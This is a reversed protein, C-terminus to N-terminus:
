TTHSCQFVIHLNTIFAADSLKNHSVLNIINRMRQEMSAMRLKWVEFQVAKQALMQDTLHMIPLADDGQPPRALLKDHFKQLHSLMLEAADSGEKLYIIHKAMKHLGVFDPNGADNKTTTAKALGLATQQKRDVSIDKM